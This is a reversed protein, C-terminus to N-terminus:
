ITHCALCLNKKVTLESSAVCTERGGSVFQQGGSTPEPASNRLRHCSLCSVRGNVLTIEPDLLQRARYRNPHKRSSDEYRMGVPHNVNVLGVFHLPSSASKLAVDRATTGDHCQMCRLTVNDMKGDSDSADRRTENGLIFERMSDAFSRATAPQACGVLVILISVAIEFGGPYHGRRRAVFAPAVNPSARM